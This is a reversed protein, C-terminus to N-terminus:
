KRLRRKRGTSPTPVWGPVRVAECDQAVELLLGDAIAERAGPENWEVLLPVTTAMSRLVDMAFRTDDSARTLLQLDGAPAIGVVAMVPRDSPRVPRTLDTIDWDSVGETLPQDVLTRAPHDAQMLERGMRLDIEPVSQVALPEQQGSIIWGRVLSDYTTELAARWQAWTERARRIRRIEFCREIGLSSWDPDVIPLNDGSTLATTAPGFEPSSGLVVRLLPEWSSRWLGGWLAQRSFPTGPGALSVLLYRWLRAYEFFRTHVAYSALVSELSLDYGRTQLHECLIRSGSPFLGALRILKGPAGTIEYGQYFQRKAFEALGVGVVSKDHNIAVGLWAMLDLYEAAVDGDFIVIDDGLLAYDSFLGEHGIRHAAIQVVVHHSVAFAAWSSLTGMPQGCAYRYSKGRYWYERETLLTLWASAASASTLHGLVLETFRAPFRDTAASLDYAYCKIGRRTMERVRDAARGQDWTGDMPLRKLAAMLYDHLRKCLSQTWYDSIAFLRKKGGPEDKVGFRGLVIQHEPLFRTLSPRSALWHGTVQSLTTVRSPLNPAGLHQALDVFSQWLVSERLAHADWHAALVSHGNPGMRNSRHLVESSGEPDLRYQSVGLGGLAHSIERQLKALRRNEPLVWSSPDTVTQFKVPGSHYITRVFGLLTLAVRIHVISGKRIGSRLIGPLLLPLGDRLKVPGKSIPNGALFKLVCRTCEKLYMSVGPKGRTFHIKDVRVFFTSVSTLIGIPTNLAGLVFEYLKIWSREFAESVATERLSLFTINKNMEQTQQSRCSGIGLLGSGWPPTDPSTSLM